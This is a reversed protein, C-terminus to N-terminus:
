GGCLILYHKWVHTLGPLVRCLLVLPSYIARYTTGVDLYGADALMYAPGSSLFYLLPLALVGAAITLPVCGGRRTRNEDM